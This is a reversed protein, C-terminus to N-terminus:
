AAKRRIPSLKALDPNMMEMLGSFFGEALEEEGHSTEIHAYLSINADLCRRVAERVGLGLGDSLVRVGASCRLLAHGVSFVGPLLAQDLISWGPGLDHLVHALHHEQLCAFYEPLFYRPTNLEIGYRYEGPLVACFRGLGSVLSSVTLEEGPFVPPFRLLVLDGPSLVDRLVPVTDRGFAEPDLFLASLQGRRDRDGHCHSFRYTTVDNEVALVWRFDRPLTERMRVAVAPHRRLDDGDILATTCCAAHRQLVAAIGDAGGVAEHSYGFHIEHRGWARIQQATWEHLPEGM